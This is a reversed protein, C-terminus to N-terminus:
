EMEGLSHLDGLALLRDVQEPINYHDALVKGNDDPYGNLHCFITLYPIGAAKEDM